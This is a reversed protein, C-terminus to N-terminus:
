AWLSVPFLYHLWWHHVNNWRQTTVGNLQRYDKPEGWGRIRRENEGVHEAPVTSSEWRHSDTGVTCARYKVTNLAYIAIIIIYTHIYTHIYTRIFTHVYARVCTHIYGHMCTPIYTCIYTNICAHIYTHWQIYAHTHTHTYGCDYTKDTM